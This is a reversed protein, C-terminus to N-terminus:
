CGCICGDSMANIGPYEKSNVQSASDPSKEMKAGKAMHFHAPAASDAKAFPNKLEVGLLNM